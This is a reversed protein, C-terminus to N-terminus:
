FVPRMYIEVIKYKYINFIFVNLLRNEKRKLCLEVVPRLLLYILILIMLINKGM